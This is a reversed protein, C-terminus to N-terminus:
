GRLAEYPDLRSARIAPLLGFIVGTLLVFILALAVTQINLVAEWQGMMNAVQQGFFMGVLIGAIGGFLCVMMAELLFQMLIYGNTAGVAKRLGIEKKRQAVSLLMINMIGVGGTVLSIMALAIGVLNQKKWIGQTKEISERADSVTLGTPFTKSLLGKVLVRVESSKKDDYLTGALFTDGGQNVKLKEITSVPVFVTGDAQSSSSSGKEKLVGVVKMILSADGQSLHVYENIANRDGFLDKKVQAGIVGVLEASSDEAADYVRGTQVLIKTQEFFQSDVGMIKGQSRKDLFRLSFGGVQGVFSLMLFNPIYKKLLARHEEKLSGSQGDTMIVIVNTGMSELEKRIYQSAGENSSLTAIVAGTGFIMGVVTLGSQLKNIRLNAFSLKLLGLFTSM